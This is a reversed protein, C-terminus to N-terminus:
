LYRFCLAPMETVGRFASGVARVVDLVDPVGDCNWDIVGPYWSPPPNGRFVVEVTGVVDLVDYQNDKNVNGHILPLLARYANLRGCGYATDRGVPGKDEATRCLIDFLISDLENGASAILDTRRSLVLGAAGAVLPASISTGGACCDYNYDACTELQPVM